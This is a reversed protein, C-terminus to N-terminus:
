SNPRLSFNTGKFIIKGTKAGVAKRGHKRAWANRVRHLNSASLGRKFEAPLYPRLLDVVEVLSGRETRANYTLKGGAERAADLLWEIFQNRIATTRTGPYKTEKGEFGLMIKIVWDLAENLAETDSPLMWQSLGSTQLEHGLQQAYHKIRTAAKRIPRDAFSVSLM